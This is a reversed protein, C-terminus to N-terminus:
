YRKRNELFVQRKRYGLILRIPSKNIYLKVTPRIRFKKRKIKNDIRRIEKKLIRKIHNKIKEEKDNESQAVVKALTYLNNKSIFLARNNLFSFFSLTLVALRKNGNHLCHNKVLLYFMLTAKNYFGVCNSVGGFSMFPTNLCSEIRQLSDSALNPIPENQERHLNQAFNFVFLWNELSVPYVRKLETNINSM